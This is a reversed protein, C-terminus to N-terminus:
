FSALERIFTEVVNKDFQSGQCRKLESLAEEKSMARHYPRDNVMADYSDAVCLIRSGLPIEEGSKQFPYGTGDIREHHSLVLEAIFTLAKTKSLAQYGYYPHKKILDFEEKSLPNKKNIIESPIVTKGIDHVLGAVYFM